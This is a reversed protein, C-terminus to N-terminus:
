GRGWRRAALADLAVAALVVLAPEAGARLRTFGYSIVSVLVVLAFPTLLILWPGGRRRLVVVGYVALLVLAYYCAVGAQEVRLNRGEFFTEQHAQERPHYLEFSRGLRAAVVVPVRGAHDRAYRLGIDRLREAELAENAHVPKPVCGFDWQGILPGHYTTDCNAGALLGGVNTSVAVPRDFVIWCRVLWPALVVICALATVGARRPGCLPLVLLVLLALAESRTLAAAAIAVGLLVAGRRSPAQRYAV